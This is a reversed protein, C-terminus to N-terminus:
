HATSVNITKKVATQTKDVEAQVTKKVKKKPPVTMTVPSKVPTTVEALLITQAFFASLVLALALISFHKM